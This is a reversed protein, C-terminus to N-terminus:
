FEHVMGSSNWTLKWRGMTDPAQKRLAEQRTKGTEFSEQFSQKLAEQGRRAAEICIERTFLV